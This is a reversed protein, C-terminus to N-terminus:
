KKNLEELLQAKLKERLKPKIVAFYYWLGAVLIIWIFIIFNNVWVYQETFAVNISKTQRFDKIQKNKWEYSLELVVTLPKSIKRTKVTEWFKLYTQSKKDSYFSNLDKFKVIKTGDEKLEQFWFGEWISEYNRTSNPLVNGLTDNVPIYDVLKEWIFAGAPSLVSEKWINKLQDWNEDTLTIKWTPKIHINWDNQFKTQFSIPFDTFNNWEKFVKEDLSWIKFEKLEWWIRVDWSVNILVLVWLRQVVAVQTWSPKGPSFFVAWYHWWPEWNSPVNVTFKVERTENKALTITNNDLEIWNSLSFEDSTSDKPKVFTPTGKEDWAIFDEKSTYLTVPEDSNNTVKIIEEVKEWPNINFEHKLPSISLSANALWFNIVFLWLFVLLKKLIM